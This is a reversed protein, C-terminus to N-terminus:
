QRDEAPSALNIEWPAPKKVTSWVPSQLTRCLDKALNISGAYGGYSTHREQNIDIYPIKEKYALYQNRSGAILFDAGTNKITDLLSKPSTDELMRDKGILQEMKEKDGQSSKKTGAGTVEIGLDNLASIMSWSKVGGSYVVAKKGKLIRRYPVLNEWAQIELQNIKGICEDAAQDNIKNKGHFYKITEKLAHTTNSIGFYSVEIFDIGYKDQMGSAINILARSCVMLNLGAHHARTIEAYDADGTIKAMVPINIKEYLPLINWMDGAINYEGIINVSLEKNCAVTKDMIGTGIVYKLLVNGAIRNGLNKHGMFGPAVVPIVPVPFQEAMSQCVKETDEGTMGPICTQYVFIASPSFREQIEFIAKRLKEEAGFVIDTENLDTTFCYRYLRSGSSYAGRSEYNHAGCTIGGHVLHATDR